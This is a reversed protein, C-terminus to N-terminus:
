AALDARRPGLVLLALAAVLALAGWLVFATASGSKQWVFGFASGSLLAVLGTSMNYLGFGKGAKGGPVNEAVLAKEAGEVLGHSLGYLATMAFLQLVTAALGVASWTLAYVSWGLLLSLRRGYRDALKGGYTGTGAKVVHLCLWLLPASTAEMGLEVGKVILFADTANAFGFLLVPILTRTFNRKPLPQSALAAGRTASGPMSQTAVAELPEPTLWLAVMALLGPVAAWLFVVRLMSLSPSTSRAGLLSLVVLSFVTGLAAGGHDMARHFGYARARLSRDTARLILADRPSTRVGKGVRDLARLLLVHWPALALAMLPRALTSLGYGAVILPKKRPLRDSLTGSFYKLVSAVLEATGEVVGIFTTGAGMGVLFIPLLPFMAESSLDTLLSVWGLGVVTKPLPRHADSKARPPASSM